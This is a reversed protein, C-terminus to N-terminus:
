TVGLTKVCVYRININKGTMEHSISVLSMYLAQVFYALKLLKDSM